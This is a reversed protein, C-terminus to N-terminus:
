LGIACGEHLWYLLHAIFLLLPDIEHKQFIRFPVDKQVLKWGQLQTHVYDSVFGTHNFPQFAALCLRTWLHKPMRKQVVRTTVDAKEGRRDSVDLLVLYKSPYFVVGKEVSFPPGALWCWGMRGRGCDPCRVSVQLFQSFWKNLWTKKKNKTKKKTTTTTTKTQKWTLSDAVSRLIEM